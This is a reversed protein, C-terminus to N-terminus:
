SCFSLIHAATSRIIIEINPIIDQIHLHVYNYIGKIYTYGNIDFDYGCVNTSGFGLGYLLSLIIM